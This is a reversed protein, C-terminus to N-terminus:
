KFLKGLSRGFDDLQKEIAAIGKRLEDAKVSTVAGCSCTLQPNTKLRGIKEPMKKGCGQCPIDVTHSDLDLKMPTGKDFRQQTSDAIYCAPVGAKIDNRCTYNNFIFISVVV